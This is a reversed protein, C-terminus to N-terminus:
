MSELDVNIITRLCKYGGYQFNNYCILIILLYDFLDFPYFFAIIGERYNSTLAFLLKNAGRINIRNTFKFSINLVISKLSWKM